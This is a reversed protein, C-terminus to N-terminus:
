NTYQKIVEYIHELSHFAYKKLKIEGNQLILLCPVSEIKWKEAYTPIYNLDKMYITLSPIAEEVITLMKKALQCTGCLPTYLYLFTLDENEISQLQEKTIDMM